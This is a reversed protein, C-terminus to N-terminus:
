SKNQKSHIYISQILTTANYYDKFWFLEKEITTKGLKLIIAIESVRKGQCLLDVIQNQRKTIEM